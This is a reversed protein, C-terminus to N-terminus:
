NAMAKIVTTGTESTVKVIAFGKMPVFLSSANTLRSSKCLGALDYVDVRSGVPLGELNLGGAVQYARVSLGDIPKLATVGDIVYGSVILSATTSATTPLIKFFRMGPTPTYSFQQKTTTLNTEDLECITRWASIGAEAPSEQLKLGVSGTGTMRAAVTINSAVGLFACMIKNNSNNSTWTVEGATADFSGAGSNVYSWLPYTNTSGSILPNYNIPLSTFARGNMGVTDVYSAPNKTSFNLSIAPGANGVADTIAGAPITITYNKGYNMAVLGLTLINGTVSPKVKEFQTKPGITIATPNAIVVGESFTFTMNADVWSMLSDAKVSQATLTPLIKDHAYRVTYAATAASNAAEKIAGAPIVLDFSDADAALGTFNITAVNNAIVPEFAVGGMTISGTGRAINKDYTVKITGAVGVASKAVPNVGTVAAAQATYIGPNTNSIVKVVGCKYKQDGAWIPDDFLHTVDLVLGDQLKVNCSNAISATASTSIPILVAFTDGAAVPGEEVFFEITAGADFTTLAAYKIADCRNGQGLGIRIKANANVNIDGAGFTMTGLGHNSAEGGIELIGDIDSTSLASFNPTGKLVAGSDVVLKGNSTIKGLVTLSGQRVWTKGNYTHNANTLRWDGTGVKIINNTLGSKSKFGSNVIPGGFVANTNASGVQWTHNTTSSGQRTSGLVSMPTGNLAGIRCISNDRYLTTEGTRTTLDSGWVMLISDGVNVTADPMGLPYRTAYTYTLTDRLTMYDSLPLVNHLSGDANFEAVGSTDTLVFNKCPYGSISTNMQATATVDTWETSRDIGVNFQGKFGSANGGFVERLYRVYLNFTTSASGTLKGEWTCFKDFTLSGYSNDVVDIDWKMKEFGLLTTSTNCQAGMMIKGNNLTVKPGFATEAILNVISSGGPGNVRLTSNNDVLSGQTNAVTFGKGVMTITAPGHQVMQFDGSIVNANGAPTTWTGLTYANTSNFVLGGLVLSDKLQLYRRNRTVAVGNVTDTVNSLGNSVLLKAGTFFPLATASDGPAMWNKATKNFSSDKAVGTWILDPTYADVAYIGASLFLGFSMFLLKTFTRKM